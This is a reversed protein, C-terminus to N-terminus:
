GATIHEFITLAARHQGSHDILCTRFNIQTSIRAYGGQQIVVPKVEEEEAKEEVRPKDSLFDSKVYGTKGKYKIRSWEGENELLEVKSGNPVKIVITAKSNPKKRANLAGKGTEVWAPEALAAGCILTLLLFLCAIRCVPKKM